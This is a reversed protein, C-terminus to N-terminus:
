PSKRIKKLRRYLTAKSIGLVDIAKDIDGGLREIVSKIYDEELQDLNRMVSQRRDGGARSSVLGPFYELDLPRGRALLSARELVNRLERINGPWSYAKLFSMVEPSVDPNPSHLDLLVHRVLGALDEPRERLPPIMLPFVQIRFYLDQRFRAQRVEGLLEKNTACILRFDSNRVKVEGLRRFKKEEIVKLFQAQVALDMDGIEDLFLTGGDAFEILGQRDQIASTFAGRAHGFLENALLEGRLTSCNIEVFPGSSRLSHEHVWQALVGKGSGTEGLLLIVSDNEAATSAHAMVSRMAPSDGFYHQSKKSLRQRTLDKRRLASLELCKQLFVELDHINVPKTLFNDAGRQMAEVALPVDGAGTIIIIAIDHHDARLDSIWDIGNGDPLKQDLIVADLRQSVIADRAESLSAAERVIYGAKTLYRSLGLRIAPEDDVILINQKM